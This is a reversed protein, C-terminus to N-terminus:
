PKIQAIMNQKFAVRKDEKKIDRALIEVLDAAKFVPVSELTHGLDKAADEILIEAIPGVATSLQGALYTIFDKGLYGNGNQTIEIAKIAALETAAAVADKISLGAKKAAATLNLKGDLHVLLTLMHSTCKFQSLEQSPAHKFVMHAIEAPSPPM